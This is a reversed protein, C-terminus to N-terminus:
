DLDENNDDHGRGSCGPCIVFLTDLSGLTYIYGAGKCKKCNTNKM